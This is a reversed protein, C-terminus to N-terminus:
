TLTAPPRLLYLSIDTIEGIVPQAYVLISTSFAEFDSQDITRCDLVEQKNEMKREPSSQNNKEQQELKKMMQCKGQCRMQPKKKNECRQAYASSRAFYDAVILVRDFSQAM